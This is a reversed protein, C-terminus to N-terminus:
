RGMVANFAAQMAEDETLAAQPRQASGTPTVAARLRQQGKASAQAAATRATSWQQFQTLVAGMEDATQATAFAQQVALERSGLWTGFEDSRLTERWGQHLRDMVAMEIALPDHVPVQQEPQVPAARTAPMAEAQPAPEQQRGAAMARVYQAIEPYDQEFAQMNEPLEPLAAAQPKAAPPQQQLQQLQRKLDGVNGHAKDVMRKLTEVEAANSLLRHLESRRLGDLLVPDSDEAPTAPAQGGEEPKATAGETAPDQTAEAPDAAPEAPEQSAPPEQEAEAAAEPAATPAEYPEGTVGAFAQEFAAQEQQDETTV